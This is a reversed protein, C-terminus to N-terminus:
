KAGGAVDRVAFGRPAEGRRHTEWMELYAAEIHRCFRASDFLRATSAAEELRAKIGQLTAPEAVLRRAMAEYDELSHTM